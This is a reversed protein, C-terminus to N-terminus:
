GGRKVHRGGRQSDPLDYVGQPMPQTPSGGKGELRRLAGMLSLGNIVSQATDIDCKAVVALKEVTMLGKVSAKIIRVQEPSAPLVDLDPWWKLRYKDGPRLWSARQGPYAHSGILWLLADVGRTDGALRPSDPEIPYTGIIVDDPHEPFEELPAAWVYEQHRLDIAISPFGRPSLSVLIPRPIQQISHIATAAAGWGPSSPPPPPATPGSAFPADPRPHESTNSM